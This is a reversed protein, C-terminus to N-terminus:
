FLERIGGHWSYLLNEALEALRAIAEPLQLKVEVKFETNHM